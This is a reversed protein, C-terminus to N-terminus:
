CRWARPLDWFPRRAESVAETRSLGIDALADSDLAALARRSRHLAILSALSPLRDTSIRRTHILTTM